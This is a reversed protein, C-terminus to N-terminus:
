KLAERLIFNGTHEFCPHRSITLLHFTPDRPVSGAKIDLNTSCTTKTDFDPTAVNVDASFKLPVHCKKLICKQPFILLWWTMKPKNSPDTSQISDDVNEASFLRPNNSTPRSFLWAVLDM